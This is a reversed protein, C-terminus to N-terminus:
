ELLLGKLRLEMRERYIYERDVTHLKAKGELQPNM